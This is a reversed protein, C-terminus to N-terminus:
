LRKGKGGREMHIASAKSEEQTIKIAQIKKIQIKFM